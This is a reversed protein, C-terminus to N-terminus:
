PKSGNAVPERGTPTGTGGTAAAVPEFLAALPVLWFIEGASASTVSRPFGTQM